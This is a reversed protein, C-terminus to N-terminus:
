SRVQRRPASDASPASRSAAAHARQAEAHDRREIRRVVEATVANRHLPERARQHAATMRDRDEIIRVTIDDPVLEGKSMYSKVLLGLETGASLHERFMDGSAVHPLGLQQALPIGQTGKGSGPAGLLVVIM